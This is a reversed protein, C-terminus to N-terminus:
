QFGRDADGERGGGSPNGIELALQVYKIGKDGQAVVSRVADEYEAVGFRDDSPFVKRKVQFGALVGEDTTDIGIEVSPHSIDRMLNLVLKNMDAGKLLAVPDDVGPVDRLNELLNFGFRVVLYEMDPSGLVDYTYSARSVRIGSIERGDQIEPGLEDEVTGDTMRVYERVEDMVEDFEREADDRERM